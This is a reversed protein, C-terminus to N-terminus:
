NPSKIVVQGVILQPMNLIGSPIETLMVKNLM